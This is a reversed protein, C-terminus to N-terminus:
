AREPLLRPVARAAALRGAVAAVRGAAAALHRQRQTFSLLESAM